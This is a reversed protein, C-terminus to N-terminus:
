SQSIEGSDSGTQHDTQANGNKLVELKTIIGQLAEKMESWEYQEYSRLHVVLRWYLWHREYESLTLQHRPLHDEEKWLPEAVPKLDPWTYRSSQRASPQAPANAREAQIEGMLDNLDM